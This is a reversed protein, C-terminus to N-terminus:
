SKTESESNPAQSLVQAELSMTVFETFASDAANVIGARQALPLLSIIPQACLLQLVQWLQLFASGSTNSGPCRQLPVMGVQVARALRTIL